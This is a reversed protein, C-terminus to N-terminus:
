ASRRRTTVSKRDALQQPKPVWKPVLEHVQTATDPWWASSTWRAVEPLRTWVGWATYMRNAKTAPLLKAAKRSLLTAEANIACARAGQVRAILRGDDIRQRAVKVLEEVWLTSAHGAHSRDTLQPPHGFTAFFVSVLELFLAGVEGRPPKGSGRGFSKPPGEKAWECVAKLALLAEPLHKIYDVSSEREVHDYLRSARSLSGFNLSPGARGRPHNNPINLASILNDACKAVGAFYDRTASKSAIPHAKDFWVPVLFAETMAAAIVGRDANPILPLRAVRAFSDVDDAHFLPGYSRRDDPDNVRRALM